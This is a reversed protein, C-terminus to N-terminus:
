CCYPSSSQRPAVQFAQNQFIKILELLAEHIHDCNLFSYNQYLALVESKTRLGTKVKINKLYFEVTRASLNLLTGTAKITQNHQMCFICEAERETLHLHQLPKPMPYTIKTKKQPKEMVDSETKEFFIDTDQLNSYLCKFGKKEYSLVEDLIHQWYNMLIFNM